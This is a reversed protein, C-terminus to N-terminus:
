LALNRGMGNRIKHELKQADQIVANRNLTICKGDQAVIKGDIIVTDVTKSTASFVINSVTSYRPVMSPTLLDLILVDARKGIEISGILRDVGLSKAGGITAMKLVDWASIIDADLNHVKHLLAAAKMVEFMDQSNNSAAGDTGLGVHIGLELYKPVPAVGDALYQNSIPNHVVNTGTDALIKRENEDVWVCHALVADEGLVGLRDLWEVTRYGFKQKIIYPRNKVESVHMHFGTKADRSLQRLSLIMEPSVSVENMSEPRIFIRGEKGHWRSIFKKINEVAEKPTELYSEHASGLDFAGRGLIARVGSELCAQAIGDQSYPDAFLYHSDVATTTGSEIMELCAQKGAIESGERDMFPAVPWIANRAWSSLDHGDGLGRCMVQFLHNHANIIGPMVLKDTADILTNSRYKKLFDSTDGIDVIVGDKIAVAANVIEQSSGAMTLLNSSHILLNIKM